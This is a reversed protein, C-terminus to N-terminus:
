EMRKERRRKGRRRDTQRDTEIMGMRRVGRGCVLGVFVSRVSVSEGVGGAGDGAGEWGSEGGATGQIGRVYLDVEDVADGVVEGSDLPGVGRGAGSNCAEVSGVAAGGVIATIDEKHM